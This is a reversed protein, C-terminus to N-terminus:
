LRILDMKIVDGWQSGLEKGGVRRRIYNWLWGRWLTNRTCIIGWQLINIWRKWVRRGLQKGWPLTSYDSALFVGLNSGWWGSPYGTNSGEWFGASTPPWWGCRLDLSSFKQSSCRTLPGWFVCMQERRDLSRECRHGSRRLRGFTPCCLWCNMM